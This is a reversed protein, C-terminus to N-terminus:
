MSAEIWPADQNLQKDAYYCAPNRYQEHVTNIEKVLSESLKSIKFAGVCEKVQRVSTTGIIISTNCPQQNAWALALETPTLGFKEALATYKISAKMAAPYGM